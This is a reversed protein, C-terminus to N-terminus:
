LSNQIGLLGWFFGWFLFLNPSCSPPRSLWLNKSKMFFVFFDLFLVTSLSSSPFAQPTRSVLTNYLIYQVTCYVSLAMLLVLIPTEATTILTPVPLWSLWALNVSVSMSSLRIISTNLVSIWPLLQVLAFTVGSWFYQELLCSLSWNMVLSSLASPEGTTMLVLMSPLLITSLSLALSSFWNVVLSSLASTEGTTMLVLIPPLRITLSSLALTFSISQMPGCKAGVQVSSSASKRVTTLLALMSPLLISTLSTSMSM